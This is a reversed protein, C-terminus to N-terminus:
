HSTQHSSEPLHQHACYVSMNCASFHGGVSVRVHRLRFQLACSHMIAIHSNLFLQLHTRHMQSVYMSPVSTTRRDAYHVVTPSLSAL